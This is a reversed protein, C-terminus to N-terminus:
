HTAEFISKAVKDWVEPPIGNLEDNDGDEMSEKLKKGCAKAVVDTSESLFGWMLHM